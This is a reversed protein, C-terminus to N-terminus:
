RQVAESFTKLEAESNQTQSKLQSNEWRAQILDRKLTQPPFFFFFFFCMWKDFCRVCIM